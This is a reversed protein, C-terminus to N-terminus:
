ELVIIQKILANFVEGDSTIEAMKGDIMKTIVGISGTHKGAIAMVKAKEKIPLVKTITNKSFDVVVSDNVNAEKDYLYNNGDLLNLQVKKGKLVKKNIIKSVKSQSDKESIEEVDYKGFKSYILRYSKKLPVITLVDLLEMSRSDDLVPKGSILLDKKHVAKKLERKNQVLKLMDRLVIVIPIGASNKSVVFATGKRPIPWAKPAEQRKQHKSM